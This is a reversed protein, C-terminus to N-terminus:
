MPSQLESTHEESRSRASERRKRKNAGSGVRATGHDELSRRSGPFCFGFAPGCSQGLDIRDPRCTQDRYGGVPLSFSIPLADHLSLSYFSISRMFCLVAYSSCRHSSNLRTSKRDRVLRSGVNVNIRELGLELREM